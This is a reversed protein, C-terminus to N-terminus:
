GIEILANLQLLQLDMLLGRWCEITENDTEREREGPPVQWVIQKTNTKGTEM